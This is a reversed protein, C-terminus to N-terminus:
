FPYSQISIYKSIAPSEHTEAQVKNKINSFPKKCRKEWQLKNYKINTKCKFSKDAQGLQIISISKIKGSNFYRIKIKLVSKKNRQLYYCRKFLEIICMGRVTWKM